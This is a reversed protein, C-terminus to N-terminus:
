APEPGVYTLEGADDRKVVHLHVPPIPENYIGLEIRAGAAIAEREEDTLEWESLVLGPRVRYCHLDNDENGGPLSYVFNSDPTKRPRM